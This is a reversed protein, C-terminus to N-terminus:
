GGRDTRAVPGLQLHRWKEQFEPRELVERNVIGGPTRGHALDIMGACVTRGIDRFLEATWAISHPALLVNELEALRPPATFPETDFVDVAAGAIGGSKLREYLAAENVIGGRATNILYATPKMLGLEREGILDRTSDNLPCNISVFDADRLLEDLSVLRAGSTALAADPTVHPDFALPQNMGFGSLLRVLARGIGGLGVVGLTRDRLECGMWKTREDWAGSRSLADKMKVHHTLALMWGVTAEAVSRDVAGATIFVLVNANTCAPVDVADYGVGFRGIALLNEPRGLSRATVAPTLVIVGQADGIQDPTIEPQHSSFPKLAIASHRRFGDLGLDQFRPAGDPGFFDGTLAVRFGPSSVGMITM